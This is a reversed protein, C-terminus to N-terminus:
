ERSSSDCEMPILPPSFTASLPSDHSLSLLGPLYFDPLLQHGPIEVNVTSLRHAADELFCCPHRSPPPPPCPTFFVGLSRVTGHTHQKPGSESQFECLCNQECSLEARMLRILRSMSNRVFKPFYSKLNEDHM